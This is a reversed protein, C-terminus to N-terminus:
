ADSRKYVANFRFGRYPNLRHIDLIECSAKECRGLELFDARHFYFCEIAGRRERAPPRRGLLRQMWSAKPPVAIEDLRTFHESLAGQTRELDRGVDITRQEYGERTQADPISGILVRGGPRVVRLMERILSAGPAFTPFNTFVDYCVAADFEGAEFPLREGDAVSFKANSLGLRRAVGLAPEALDVGHYAAVRPALGRALFGSACGVELLQSQPGSQLRQLIDDILDNFVEDTWVRPDRGSVYALEERGLSRQQVVDGREAFFDKLSQKWAESM